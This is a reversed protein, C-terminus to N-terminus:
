STWVKPHGHLCSKENVPFIQRSHFNNQLLVSLERGFNTHKDDQAIKSEPSDSELMSFFIPVDIVAAQSHDDGDNGINVNDTNNDDDNDNNNDEDHFGDYLRLRQWQENDNSGDDEGNNDEKKFSMRVHNVAAQSDILQMCSAVCHPWYRLEDM